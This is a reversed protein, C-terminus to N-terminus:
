RDRRISRLTRESSSTRRPERGARELEVVSTPSSAAADDARSSWFQESLVRDATREAASPQLQDSALAARLADRLSELQARASDSSRRRPAPVQEWSQASSDKGREPAFGPRCPGNRLGLKHQTSM